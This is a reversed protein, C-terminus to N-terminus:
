KLKVVKGAKLHKRNFGDELIKKFFANTMFNRAQIFRAHDIVPGAV